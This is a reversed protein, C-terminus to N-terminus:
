CIRVLWHMEGHNKAPPRTAVYALVDGFELYTKM